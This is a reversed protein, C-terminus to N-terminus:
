QKFIKKSLWHSVLASGAGVAAGAIVDTPYHEGLYLRSYGVGAAWAYAPIAVYWKKFELTLTTATAFATSTHGSPFSPDNDPEYPFVETPYKEYPRDRNIAYKMGQTIVTNIVISGVMEWGKNQLNKDKKIFGTALLAAPSVIAVPYVSRTFGKMIVSNPNEPNISKLTNIDWNQANASIFFCGTFLLICTILNKIQKM